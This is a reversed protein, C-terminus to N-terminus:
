GAAELLPAVKEWRAIECGDHRAFRASVSRGELTGAITATQPGGFLETCATDPPVPELDAPRLAAAADCARGRPPAECAIRAERAREPGDGDPDVRVTLQTPPASAPASPAPREDAGCGAAALAAACCLVIWPSMATVSRLLPRETM